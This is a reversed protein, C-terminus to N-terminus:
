TGSSLAYFGCLPSVFYIDICDSLITAARKLVFKVDRM